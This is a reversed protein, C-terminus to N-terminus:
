KITSLDNLLLTQAEKDTMREAIKRANALYQDMGTKNRLLMEARARAEYAFGLCYPPLDPSNSETLCQIAYRQANEAQGLLAYVRSIQWLSISRNESTCDSRQTWHYFSAFALLLLQEEEAPSRQLKDILSWAANFCEAAFYHHAAALDFSPKDVM